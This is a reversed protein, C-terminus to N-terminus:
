ECKSVLMQMVEDCSSSNQLNKFQRVKDIFSAFRNNLTKIQEKEHIRVAQIEPDIELNLPALLSKNVTVATVPVGTGWGAGGAHVLSSGHVNFSKNFPSTDRFGYSSQSSSSFSRVTKKVSSM